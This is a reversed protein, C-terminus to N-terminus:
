HAEERDGQTMAVDLRYFATANGALVAPRLAAPLAAPVAEDLGDFHWHPYDTSFLLLREAPMAGLVEGVQDASGPLDLPQTTFRIHEAVYESPPRRVWPVDRRLGKWVKDIRWLMAPLWTFGGEVCVVRLDPFRDFVGEGILSLLQTQFVQAMGVYDELYHSTWGSSTPPGGPAGGFHLAVALGMRQAAEFIPHFNRNGYPAASRVPLLVQVFRRDRGVREIEKAAMAPLQSPVVVSARLRPEPDLWEAVQWENVAAAVQCATDPNRISDAGYSCNLIGCGIDLPDLLQSRLLELSTGPPAAGNRWMPAVTTPANGPYAAEVPGKFASEGGYEVWHESLYPFLAPLGPVTNHIDCDVLKM